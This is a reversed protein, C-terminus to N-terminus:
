SDPNNGDPEPQKFKYGIDIIRHIFKPNGPDPEIKDQLTSITDDIDRLTVFHSNGWVAGRIEDCTLTCGARKLFLRLMKFQGPSLKVPKGKCSFTEAVIDLRCDGFEYVDPEEGGRRRMFAEARAMLEKISFPKTVYDDAGLNLGMVVDSETDKATVMIIPMDLNKRRIQSCIEYGNVKPLMIDLIILDPEETLAAKLGQEGDRATKVRYGKLDFNDELGRLMAPNDEIILVSKM